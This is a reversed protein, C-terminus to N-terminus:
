ECYGCKPNTCKWVSFKDGNFSETEKKIMKIKCKPCLRDGWTSTSSTSKSFCWGDDKYDGDDDEDAFNATMFDDVMKQLEEDTMDKFKNTDM